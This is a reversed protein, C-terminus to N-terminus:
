PKGRGNERVNKPGNKQKKKRFIKDLIFLTSSRSILHQEVNM